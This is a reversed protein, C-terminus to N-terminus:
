SVSQGLAARGTGFAPDPAGGDGSLAVLRRADDNEMPSDRPRVGFIPM